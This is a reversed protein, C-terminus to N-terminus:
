PVQRDHLADALKGRPNSARHQGPTRQSGSQALANALAELSVLNHVPRHEDVHPLLARVGQARPEFKEYRLLPNLWILRRCSKHLREAEAGLGPTPDRDLGDTILLVVAGQALVRRSWKHNFEHLCQRLRTGGAWDQVQQGLHRLALDPDRHRLTRTVNSLETGFLFTHVRERRMTLAHLFHLLMETYRSMSGSIDCLVVLPPPRRIAQRFALPAADGFSRLAQRVTRRMDIRGSRSPAMRRTAVEALGLDMKAVLRKARRLEEASMQEFDRTRLTQDPAYSWTADVEIEPPREEPPRREPQMAEAVRRAGAEPPAPSAMKTKPLLLALAQNAGFPDRWFLRFAHDFLEHEERRHVFVAHLAWYFQERRTVDIVCVAALASEVSAPGVPMGAARLLRAFHLVNTGLQSV